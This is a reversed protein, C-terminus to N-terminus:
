DLIVVWDQEDPPLYEFHERNTTSGLPKREGTRPDFQIIKWPGGRSDLALRVPAKLGRTYLLYQRGPEALCWNAILPTKEGARRESTAADQSQREARPISSTLLEDHPVLKWYDLSSFLRKICSCQDVWPQNKPDDPLFATPHRYGGMYTSGFGTVFYGGGMTIDWTAHRITDVTESHPKDVIGDGNQDRLFYAYEGNVVPKDSRRSELIRGHLDTYNQQYDGFSMWAAANFERVSGNRTMPHIGMMRGQPDAARLSDGLGFFERRLVDETSKRSRVEGHWEGSVLFYVDYAGYRAGIYRAYRQRAELNSFRGWPFKEKGSKEGWALALGVTLGQANAFALRSDVEQWYAPNIQEKSLDLWPPGGANGWGAESLLMSHVVNFGQAARNRLYHEATARNHEKQADDTFLAWATDGMFWVHEGNQYQFHPPAGVMSQLGGRNNSTVCEFTGMQQSLGSDGSKVLWKWIGIRDPAFRFKWTTGGDWFLPVTRVTQGDPGTLVCDGSIDTYPNAPTGGASMSVEYAAFRPVSSLPGASCPHFAGLVFLSVCCYFYCLPPLM